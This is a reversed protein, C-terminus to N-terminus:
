SIFNTKKLVSHLVVRFKITYFQSNNDAISVVEQEGKKMRKEIKNKGPGKGHFKHSLYRFINRIIVFNIISIELLVNVCKILPYNGLRKRKPFYTDKTM